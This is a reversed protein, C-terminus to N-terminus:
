KRSGIEPSTPYSWLMRPLFLLQTREYMLQTHYKGLIALALVKRPFPILYDIFAEKEKKRKTTAQVKKAFNLVQNNKAM